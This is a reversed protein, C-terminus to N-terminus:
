HLPANKLRAGMVVVILREIEAPKWAGVRDTGTDKMFDSFLYPNSRLEDQSINQEFWKSQLDNYMNQADTWLTKCKVFAATAIAEANENNLRSFAVAADDDCIKAKEIAAQTSKEIASHAENAAAYNPLWALILLALASKSVRRVLTTLEEERVEKAITVGVADKVEDKLINKLLM